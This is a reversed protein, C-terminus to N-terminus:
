SALKANIFSFIKELELLGALEPKEDANLLNEKNKELLEELRIQLEETFSFPRFQDSLNLNIGNPLWSSPQKMLEKM